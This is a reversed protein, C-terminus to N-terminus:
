RGFVSEELFIRFLDTMLGRKEDPFATLTRFMTAPVEVEDKLM